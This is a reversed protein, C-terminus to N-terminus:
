LGKYHQYKALVSHIVFVFDLLLTQIVQSQRM